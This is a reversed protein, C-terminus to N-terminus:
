HVKTSTKLDSPDEGIFEAFRLINSLSSLHNYVWALEGNRYLDLAKEEDLALLKKEDIALMGSLTFARGDGLQLQPSIPELLDYDKLKKTFAQTRLMQKHYDELMEMARKLQEGPNGDNDFLNEGNQDGFGAYSEDICIVSRGEDDPEIMIFPYRRVFAPVYRYRWKGSEDVLLNEDDRVGLVFVPVIGEDAYDVFAIVHERAAEIFEVGAIPLANTNAFAHFDQSIKLKKNKHEKTDIAVLKSYFTNISM